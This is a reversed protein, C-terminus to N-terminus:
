GACESQGVEATFPVAEDFDVYFTPATAPSPFEALDTLAESV